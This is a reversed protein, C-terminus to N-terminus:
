DLLMNVCVDRQWAIAGACGVMQENACTTVVFLAVKSASQLLLNLKNMLIVCSNKAVHLRNVHRQVARVAIHM